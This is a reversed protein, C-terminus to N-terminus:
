RRQPPLAALRLFYITGDVHGLALHRGDSALAASYIPVPVKITQSVSGDNERVIIQGERGASLLHKGDATYALFSISKEHGPFSSRERGTAADYVRVRGDKGAAALVKGDPRFTLSRASEAPGRCIVQSRSNRGHWIRVNGKVDAVAVHRGDPSFILASIAQDVQELRLM